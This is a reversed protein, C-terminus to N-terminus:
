ELDWPRDLCPRVLGAKDANVDAEPQYIYM